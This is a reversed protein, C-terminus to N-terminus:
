TKKKRKKKKKKEEEEEGRRRISLRNWMIYDLIIDSWRVRLRRRGAPINDRSIKVLRYGDMRTVHEDWERRRGEVWENIPEVGCPKRIQQSRMRTKRKVVIKRLVKM